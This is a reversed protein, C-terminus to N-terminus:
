ISTNNYLMANQVKRHTLQAQAAPIKRPEFILGGKSAKDKLSIGKASMGKRGLLLFVTTIGVILTLIVQWDMTTEPQQAL